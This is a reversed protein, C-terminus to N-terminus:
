EDTVVGVSLVRERPSVATTPYSCPHNVCQGQLRGTLHHCNPDSGENQLTVTHSEARTWLSILRRELSTPMSGSSAEPMGVPIMDMLFTDVKVRWGSARWTMVQVTIAVVSLLLGALAIVFTVVEV